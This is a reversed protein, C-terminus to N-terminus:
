LRILIRDVFAIIYSYAARARNTARGGLLTSWSQRRRGTRAPWRAENNCRELSQCHARAAMAVRAKATRSLAGDIDGDGLVVGAGSSPLPMEDAVFAMM